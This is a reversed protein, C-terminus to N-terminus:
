IYDNCIKNICKDLVLRNKTLERFVNVNENQLIVSYSTPYNNEEVFARSIKNWDDYFEAIDDSQNYTYGTKIAVHCTDGLKNYLSVINDIFSDSYISKDKHKRLTEIFVNLYDKTYYNEWSETLLSSVLKYSVISYNAKKQDRVVKVKYKDKLTDLKVRPLSLKPYRYLTAGDIEIMDPETAINLKVLNAVPENWGAKAGIYYGVNDVNGELKQKSEDSGITLKYARNM